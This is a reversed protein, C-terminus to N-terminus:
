DVEVMDANLKPYHSSNRILIKTNRYKSDCKVCAADWNPHNFNKHSCAKCRKIAEAASVYRSLLKEDLKLNPVLCGYNSSELTFNAMFYKFNGDISIDPLSQYINVLGGTEIDDIIETMLDIYEPVKKNFLYSIDDHLVLQVFYIKILNKICTRVFENKYLLFKLLVNGVTRSGIICVLRTNKVYSFLSVCFKRMNPIFLNSTNILKSVSLYFEKPIHVYISCDIYRDPRLVYVNKDIYENYKNRFVNGVSNNPISYLPNTKGSIHVVRLYVEGEDVIDVNIHLYFVRNMSKFEIHVDFTDIDLARDVSIGLVLFERNVHYTDFLIHLYRM